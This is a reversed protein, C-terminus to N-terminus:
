WQSSAPLLQVSNPYTWSLGLQEAHKFLKQVGFCKCWKEKGEKQGRTEEKLGTSSRALKKELYKVM